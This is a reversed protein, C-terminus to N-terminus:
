GSLESQGLLRAQPDFRREVFRFGGDGILVVSSCRTGYVPHLVFPPALLREREIGIGTDPLEGDAAPQQDGLAAFLPEIDASKAAPGPLWDSLASRLRRTKPWDADFSGNSVAHLGPELRRADFRPHNCVLLLDAGDFLLLNFRGYQMASDDLSRAFAEASLPGAMFDRVLDGRSRAAAPASPGDRLNTVAALRGSRSLMLWFGGVLEDRGGIIGPLEPWEQLPRSPRAHLEDRNAALVLEWHPHVRWALAILCM